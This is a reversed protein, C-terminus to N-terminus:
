LSLKKLGQNANIVPYGFACYAPEDFIKQNFLFRNYPLFKYCQILLSVLQPKLKIYAADIKKEKEMETGCGKGAISVYDDKIKVFLRNSDSWDEIVHSATLLYFEDGLFVFVGSAFPVAGKALDRKFLQCTCLGIDGEILKIYEATILSDIHQDLEDNESQKEM